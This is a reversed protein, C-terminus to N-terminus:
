YVSKLIFHKWKEAIFAVFTLTSPWLTTTNKTKLLDHFTRRELFSLFTVNGEGTYTLGVQGVGWECKTNCLNRRSPYM